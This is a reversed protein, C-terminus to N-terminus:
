RRPPRPLLPTNLVQERRAASYVSGGRFVLDACWCGVLACCAGAKAPGQLALVGGVLSLAAARRGMSSCTSSAAEGVVARRTCPHNRTHIANDNRLSTATPQAPLLMHLCTCRPKAVIRPTTSVGRGM